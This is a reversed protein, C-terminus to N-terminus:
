RWNFDCRRAFQSSPGTLYNIEAQGLRESPELNTVESLTVCRRYYSSPPYMLACSLRLCTLKGFRGDLITELSNIMKNTVMM